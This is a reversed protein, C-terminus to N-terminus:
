RFARRGEWYLLEFINAHAQLFSEIKKVAKGNWFKKANKKENPFHQHTSGDRWDKKNVYTRVLQLMTNKHQTDDEQSNAAQTMEVKKKPIAIQPHQPAPPPTCARSRCCCCSPHQSVPGGPTGPTTILGPRPQTLGHREGSPWGKVCAPWKWTSHRSAISHSCAPNM